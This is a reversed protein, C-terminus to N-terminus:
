NGNEEGAKIKNLRDNIEKEYGLENPYYFVQKEIEKPLYRQRVWSDPYDHPYKYGIGRNLDKAGGYSADRLYDPTAFFGENKVFDMARNIAMYASNSKPALAMYIVANALIIRAEPNGIVNVANFASMAVNLANPDALGIDESALILIRRAIFKIDEGGALMKALYYIAADPDSGRMSKIFASITDYHEDSDKDYYAPKDIISNKIDDASIHIKGDKRDNSLIALELSNLLFRADGGSAMILHSVARDDIEIDFAGYGRNKDRIAFDVLKALDKDGLKELTVVHCRSILAKNVEFYPNETTAGILTILGSEVHPLLTDQQSKNFRHIEDIFLITRLSYMSLNSKARDIVEKIDKVGASTASMERFDMNGSKAIIYALTTKGVGPPGYFIMSSIRGAKIMRYLPKDRGILHDQGVFDEITEPRLRAALPANKNLEEGATMEFFNLNDM